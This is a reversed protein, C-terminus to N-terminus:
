FKFSLDAQFINYRDLPNIGIADPTGGTGLGSDIRWAHAYTLNFVVSDSLMYGARAVVGQM